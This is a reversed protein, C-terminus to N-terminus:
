AGPHAPHGRGPWTAGRHARGPEREGEANGGSCDDALLPSRALMIVGQRTELLAKQATLVDHRHELRTLQARQGQLERSVRLYKQVPGVYLGIMVVAVVLAAIRGVRLGGTSRTRRAPM